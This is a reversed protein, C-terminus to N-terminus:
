SRRPLARVIAERTIRPKSYHDLSRGDKHRSFARLMRESMGGAALATLTSHRTGEQFPVRFGLAEDCAANWQRELPDTACRKASNRASPNWFLAVEGRLRAEATAQEMRWEIWRVLEEHWPGRWEAAGTKTGRIESGVRSGQVAKAVNLKGDQYDDLDLARIESLRLAETAAALFAGRREWPIAALVKAQQELTLLRPAHQAVKITPFDPVRDILGRRHCWRLFARFAGAINKITKASAGSGGLHVQWDEIAAYTISWVPRDFWHAFPGDPRSYRQIERFTNFSRRGQKVQQEWFEGYRALQTAVLEEASASARYPALAQELTKGTVMEARIADLVRRATAEDALAIRRGGGAPSPISNVRIRKGALWGFDLRYRTRGSPMEETVIRGVSAVAGWTMARAPASLGAGSRRGYAPVVPRDASDLM